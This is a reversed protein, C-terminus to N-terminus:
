LFSALLDQLFSPTSPALPGLLLRCRGPLWCPPCSTVVARALHPFLEKAISFFPRLSFLLLGVYRCPFFRQDFPFRFLVQPFAQLGVFSRPGFSFPFFVKLFLFFDVPVIVVKDFFDESFPGCNDHILKYFTRPSSGCAGQRPPNKLSPPPYL